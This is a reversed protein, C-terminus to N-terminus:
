RGAREDRGTISEKRTRSDLWYAFAVVLGVLGALKAGLWFVNYWGDWAIRELPAMDAVELCIHLGLFALPLIFAVAVLVAVRTWRRQCTWLILLIPFALLAAGPLAVITLHAFGSWASMSLYVYPAIERPRIQFAVVALAVLIPLALWIRLSWQRRCFLQFAFAGPIIVALLSCLAVKGMTSWEMTWRHWLMYRRWRPDTAPVNFTLGKAKPSVESLYRGSDDAPLSTSAVANGSSTNSLIRSGVSSGDSPLHCMYWFGRTGQGRWLPKGTAGNLGFLVNDQVVVVTSPRHQTASLISNIHAWQGPYDIKGSTPVTWQWVLQGEGGLAEVTNRGSMFVLEDRGDDDLDHAWLQKDRPGYTADVTLQRVLDGQDVVFITDKDADEANRIRLCVVHRDEDGPKMIVPVPTDVDGHSIPTSYSWQWKPEGDEARLVLLKYHREKEREVVDVIVIEPVGDGDIDDVVPIPLDNKIRDPITTLELPQPPWLPEGDRGSLARLECGVDGNKRRVPVALVFDKVGDGNLDPTARPLLFPLGVKAWRRFQPDTLPTLPQRWVLQGDGGSLVALWRQSVENTNGAGDWEVYFAGVVESSGDQDLDDCYVSVNSISLSEPSRARIQDPIAFDDAAWLRRGTKGSVAQVPFELPHSWSPDVWEFRLNESTMLLDPTGDRDLDGEPLTTTRHEVRRRRNIEKEHLWSVPWDALIHGDRGSVMTMNTRSVFLRLYGLALPNIRPGTGRWFLSDDPSGPAQLLDRIGDGDHDHVPLAGDLRRWLQRPTGALAHLQYRESIDHAYSLDELGDGNFDVFQIDRADLLSSREDGTTLSFIYAEQYYTADVYHRAVV